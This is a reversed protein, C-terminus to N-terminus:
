ISALRGSKRDLRSRASNPAPSKNMISKLNSFFGTRQQKSDVIFMGASSRPRSGSAAESRKPIKQPSIGDSDDSLNTDHM